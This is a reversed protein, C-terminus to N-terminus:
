DYSSLNISSNVNGANTIISVNYFVITPPFSATVTHLVDGTLDTLTQVTEPGYVENQIIDFARIRLEATTPTFNNFRYSVDRSHAVIINPNLTELEIYISEVPTTVVDEFVGVYIINSQLGDNDTIQIEYWGEETLLPNSFVEEFSSVSLNLTDDIEFGTYGTPNTPDGTIQRFKITASVPTYYLFSYFVTIKKNGTGGEEGSFGFIFIERNQETYIIDQDLNVKILECNYLGKEFYNPIKNLIFNSAEQKIYYLKTFDLNNIFADDIFLDYEILKANNLIKYIDQYYGQIVENFTLGTFRERAYKTVTESIGLLESGVNITNTIFESRQLYFRNSLSKYNVSGDDKIEKDWFKYVNTPSGILTTKLREPSFISSNIITTSDKLNYNIINLEGDNHDEQSDNYKFKMLNRQAYNGIIYSENNKKGVRDSLDIVDQTQLWEEHTLFKIDNTYKDKFPTLSLRWVVENIFDKCDFDILAQEFDVTNGEVIEIVTDVNGTAISFSGFFSLCLVSFKDGAELNFYFVTDFPEGYTFTLMPTAFFAAGQQSLWLSIEANTGALGTRNITGSLTFKYLGTELVNFTNNVIPLSLNDNNSIYTNSVAACGLCATFSNDYFVTLDNPNDNTYTVQTTWNFSEVPTTVQTESGLEKPYTLWLNQFDQTDFANGSYTFGFYTFIRDWIYSVLASPILYDINIGGSYTMKGNYDAINYRYKTTPDSWSDTVTDLNKLHNLEPLGVEAIKKNEIAKTFSIYGDYIAVDYYDDTTAFVKCYGDFIECEGNSNYLKVTNKEYPIASQSGTFGLENFTSINKKTKPLKIKQTYNTQRDNLSGIDNVQKTRAITFNSPLDIEIDNIFLRM